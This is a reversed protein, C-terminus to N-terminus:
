AQGVRYVRYCLALLLCITAPIAMTMFQFRSFLLAGVSGGIVFGLIILLFLIAKRKDFKDGRLLEGFMIGLDTFIGTMHTTRIIAGSYTTVLANQVGCAASAAFHGAVWGERLLFIASILLCAEILLLSDYHRGLQLSGGSLMFGSVAAGLVFSLLVGLLHLVAILNMQVIEAGLLTVTGSLHSIAQHSFGLLGVANVCGATFALIFAGYEVWRPLRAIM